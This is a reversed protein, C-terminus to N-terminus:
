AVSRNLTAINRGYRICDRELGVSLHENARTLSHLKRSATRLKDENWDICNQIVHNM